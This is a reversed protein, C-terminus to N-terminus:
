PREITVTDSKRWYQTPREQVTVAVKDWMPTEWM